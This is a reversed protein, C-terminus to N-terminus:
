EERFARNLSNAIPSVVIDLATRSGTAIMVEAPMGPYLRLDGLNALAADNIRVRARYYHMGSRRDEISDASVLEVTGDLTPATRTPFATIRVEAPLGAHVTDIDEPRIKADIVLDDSAPVIDMIEGGPPVVGGVTHYKLEVVTGDTPSRVVTREVRDRHARLREELDAVESQVDGLSAVVENMFRARADVIALETEGIQQRAQAISALYEGRDGAIDAMSRQLALLRPKREYGEDFLRKVDEHEEQILAYQRDAAEAQAQLGSIQDQLQAMRKTHIDIQSQLAHRRAEFVNTQGAIAQQQGAVGDEHFIPHSFDISEAGDREAILRMEQAKVAVYQGRTIDRQTRALTDDLVMLSQGATVTQGETVPIDRILGGELHQITKRQGAVIVEGIAIAASALPASAAWTLSGVVAVLVVAVGILLPRRAYAGPSPAELRRRMVEIEHPPVTPLSGHATPVPVTNRTSM